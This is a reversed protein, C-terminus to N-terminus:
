RETMHKLRVEPQGLRYFQGAALKMDFRETGEPLSIDSAGNCIVADVAKLRVM